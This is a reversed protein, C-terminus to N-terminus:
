KNIIIPEDFINGKTNEVFTILYNIVEDYTKGNKIIDLKNKTSDNLKITKTMMYTGDM